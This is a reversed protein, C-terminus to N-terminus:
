DSEKEFDELYDDYERCDWNVNTKKLLAPNGAYVANSTLLDKTVVSRAAVIINDAITHNKLLMVGEGLWVHHGIHIHKGQNLPRKSECDYITHFDSVYIRTDRAVLCDDGIELISNNEFVGIECGRFTCGKGIHIRCNNGTVILKLIGNISDDITIQNNNGHVILHLKYIRNHNDITILNNDGCIDIPSRKYLPNSKAKPSVFENNIGKIKILKHFLRM